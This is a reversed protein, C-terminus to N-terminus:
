QVRKDGFQLILETKGCYFFSDKPKRLIQNNNSFDIIIAVKSKM